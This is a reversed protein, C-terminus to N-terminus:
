ISQTLPINTYKSFSNMYKRFFTELTELFLKDDEPRSDPVLLVEYVKHIHIIFEYVKRLEMFTNKTSPADMLASMKQYMLAFDFPLCKNRVDITRNVYDVFSDNNKSFNGIEAEKILAIRGYISQSISELTEKSPTTSKKHVSEGEENIVYEEKDGVEDSGEAEEDDLNGEASTDIGLNYDTRGEHGVDDDSGYQDEEEHDEYDDDEDREDQTRRVM